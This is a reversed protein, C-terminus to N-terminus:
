LRSLSDIDAALAFANFMLHLGVVAQSAPTSGSGSAAALQPSAGGKGGWGRALVRGQTASPESVFAGGVETEATPRVQPMPKFVHSRRMRQAHDSASGALSISIDQRVCSFDPSVCPGEESTADASSAEQRQATAPAVQLSLALHSRLAVASQQLYKDALALLQELPGQRMADDEALASPQSAADRAAPPTTPSDAPPTRQRHQEGRTAAVRRLHALIVRLYVDVGAWKVDLAPYLWPCAAASATAHEPRKAPAAQGPLGFGPALPGLFSLEAINVTGGICGNAAMGATDLLLGMWLQQLAITAAVAGQQTDAAEEHAAGVGPLLMDIEIRQDAHNNRVRSHINPQSSLAQDLVARAIQGGGALEAQLHELQAQLMGGATSSALGGGLVDMRLVASVRKLMLPLQQLVDLVKSTGAHLADISRQLNMVEQRDMATGSSAAPSSVSSSSSGTRLRIAPTSPAEDTDERSEDPLAAQLTPSSAQDDQQASLAVSRHSPGDSRLATTGAVQAHAFPNDDQGHKEGPVGGEKSACPSPPPQGGVDGPSAKGRGSMNKMRAKAKHLFSTHKPSNAPQQATVDKAQLATVPQLRAHDLLALDSAALAGRRVSRKKTHQKLVAAQQEQLTRLAVQHALRVAHLVHTDVQLSQVTSQVAVPLGAVAMARMFVIRADVASAQAVGQTAQARQLQDEEPGATDGAQLVALQLQDDLLSQCARVLGTWQMIGQVLRQPYPAIDQAADRAGGEERSLLAEELHPRLQLLWPRHARAFDIIGHMTCLGLSQLKSNQFTKSWHQAQLPTMGLWYAATAAEQGGGQGEPCSLLAGPEMRSSHSAGAEAASGVPPLGAWQRLPACPQRRCQQLVGQLLEEPVNEDDAVGFLIQQMRRRAMPGSQHPLLPPPLCAEVLPPCPPLEAGRAAERLPAAAVARPIGTATTHIRLSAGQSGLCLMDGLEPPVGDLAAKKVAGPLLMNVIWQTLGSPLAFMGGGVQRTKLRGVTFKFDDDICWRGFRGSVAAGATEQSSQSANAAAATSADTGTLYQKVAVHPQYVLPVTAELSAELQLSKIDLDPIRKGKDTKIKVNQFLFAFTASSLEVLLKPAQLTRDASIGLSSLSVSVSADVTDLWIHDAGFYVGNGGGVFLSGSEVPLHVSIKHADILQVAAAIEADVQAVRAWFSEENLDGNEDGMMASDYIKLLASREQRLQSLTAEQKAIEAHALTQRQKLTSSSALKLDFCREAESKLAAAHQGIRKRLSATITSLEM